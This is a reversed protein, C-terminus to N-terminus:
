AASRAPNNGVLTPAFSGRAGRDELRCCQTGPTGRRYIKGGDGWPERRSHPLKTTGPIPVIWPKQALLWALSIQGPTAGKRQAWERLLDVLVLNAKRAPANGRDRTSWPEVSLSDVGPLPFFFARPKSMGGVVPRSFRQSGLHAPTRVGLNLRLSPDPDDMESLIAVTAGGYRGVAFLHDLDDWTRFIGPDRRGKTRGFHYVEFPSSSDM